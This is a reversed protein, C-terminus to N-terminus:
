APFFVVIGVVRDGGRRRFSFGGSMTARLAYLLPV